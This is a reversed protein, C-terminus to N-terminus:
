LRISGPQGDLATSSQVVHAAAQAINRDSIAVVGCREQNPTLDMIPYGNYNSSACKLWLNPGGRNRTLLTM